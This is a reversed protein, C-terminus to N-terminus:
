HADCESLAEKAPLERLEKTVKGYADEYGDSKRAQSITNASQGVTLVQQFRKYTSVSKPNLEGCFHIVGEVLGLISGDASLPTAAPVGVPSSGVRIPTAKQAPSLISAFLLIGLGSAISCNRVM